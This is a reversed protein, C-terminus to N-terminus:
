KASVPASSIAADTLERYRKITADYRHNIKMEQTQHAAIKHRIDAISEELKTLKVQLAPYPAKKSIAQEIRVEVEKKDKEVLALAAIERKLEDQIPELNRQRATEIEKENRYRALMAKDAQRQQVIAAEEVRRREDELQKQKRQEETLPAAIERRVIGNKDLEKVLRDKCEQMLIDSTYTRGAADKCVFIKQAHAGLPVAVALFM